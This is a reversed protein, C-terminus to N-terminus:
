NLKMLQKCYKRFAKSIKYVELNQFEFKIEFHYVAHLLFDAHSDPKSNCERSENERQNKTVGIAPSELGLITSSNDLSNM